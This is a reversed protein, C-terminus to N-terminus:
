LESSRIMECFKEIFHHRCASGFIGTQHYINLAIKHHEKASAKWNETCSTVNVQRDTVDGPKSSDPVWPADDVEDEDESGSSCQTHVSTLRVMQTTPIM